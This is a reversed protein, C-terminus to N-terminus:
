STMVFITFRELSFQGMIGPGGPAFRGHLQFAFSAFGNTANWLIVPTLMTAALLAALWLHPDRLLGRLKPHFIVLGAIAVGMIVANYKALAAVGLLAAGLYLHRYRGARGALREGLFLAFFHASALSLFILWHDPFALTTFAFVLPSSLYIALGTWFLNPADDPAFRKSWTWFILATGALTVFTTARLAFSSWGLLLASIAQTWGVLPAHDFYSLALHQGWQWYYAEDENPPVCVAYALKAALLVLVVAVAFATPVQVRLQDARDGETGGLGEANM